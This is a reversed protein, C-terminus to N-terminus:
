WCLVWSLSPMRGGLWRRCAARDMCWGCSLSFMWVVQGCSAPQVGDVEVVDGGREKGFWSVMGTHLWLQAQSHRVGERGAGACASDVRQSAAALAAVGRVVGVSVGRETRM